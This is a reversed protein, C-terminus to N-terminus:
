VFHIGKTSTYLLAAQFCVHSTTIPEEHRVQVGIVADPSVNSLALLDTSRVFFNGYFSQLTLGTIPIYLFDNHSDHLLKFILFYGRSCRIRLVAELGLKRTLYRHLVMQFHKVELQNRLFHFNPFHYVTGSSFKSMDAVFSFILFYTINMGSGYGAEGWVQKQLAFFFIWGDWYKELYKLFFSM